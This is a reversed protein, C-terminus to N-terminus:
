RRTTSLLEIFVRTTRKTKRRQATQESTTRKSKTPPKNPPVTKRKPLDHKEYSFVPAPEPSLAKNLARYAYERYKGLLFSSVYLGEGHNDFEAVSQDEIVESDKQPVGTLDYITNIYERKNLRRM